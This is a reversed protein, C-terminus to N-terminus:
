RAPLPCASVWGMGPVFTCPGRTLGSPSPRHTPCYRQGLSPRRWLAFEASSCFPLKGVGVWGEFRGNASIVAQPRQALTDALDVPM